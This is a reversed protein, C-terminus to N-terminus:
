YFKKNREFFFKPGFDYQKMHTMFIEITNNNHM